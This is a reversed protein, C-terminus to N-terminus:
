KLCSNFYLRDLPQLSHNTSPMVRFSQLTKLARSNLSATAWSVTCSSNMPSKSSKCITSKRQARSSFSPATLWF